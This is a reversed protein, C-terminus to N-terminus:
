SVIMKYESFCDHHIHVLLQHNDESQKFQHLLRRIIGLVFVMGLAQHYDNVNVQASEPGVDVAKKTLSNSSKKNMSSILKAVASHIARLTQLTEENIGESEQIQPSNPHISRIM